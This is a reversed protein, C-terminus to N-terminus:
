IAKSFKKCLDNLVKSEENDLDCKACYLFSNDLYGINELTPILKGKVIDFSVIADQCFELSNTKCHPCKNTIKM